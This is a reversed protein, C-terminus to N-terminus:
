SGGQGFGIRRKSKVPPEMIERIADFIAIIQEGHRSLKRELENLRAALERHAALVARLKVFVRVVLVSMEIAKRSNLVSAAMLAGHETFAYPRYKRHHGRGTKLTAIQSRLAEAEDATLRFVFDPPFREANRKVQENLRKTTVGYFAALVEDIIVRIGRIVLISREVRDVRVLSHRAM